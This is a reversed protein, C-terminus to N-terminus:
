KKLDDSYAYYVVFVQGQTIGKTQIPLKVLDNNSPTLVIPQALGPAMGAYLGSGSIRATDAVTMEAKMGRVEYFAYLPLFGVFEPQDFPVFNRDDSAAIDQRMAAFVDGLVNLTTLEVVKQVKLFCEDGYKSAYPRSVRQLRLEQPVYTNRKPGRRKHIGRAGKVM